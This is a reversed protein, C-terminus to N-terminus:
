CAPAGIAWTWAVAAAFACFIMAVICFGSAHNVIKIARPSKVHQMVVSILLWAALPFLIFGTTFIKAAILM